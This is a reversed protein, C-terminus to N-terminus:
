YSPKYILELNRMYDINDRDNDMKDFALLILNSLKEGWCRDREM